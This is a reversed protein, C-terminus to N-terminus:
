VFGEHFYFNAVHWFLFFFDVQHQRLTQNKHILNLTQACKLHMRGTTQKVVVEIEGDVKMVGGTGYGRSRAAQRSSSIESLFFAM